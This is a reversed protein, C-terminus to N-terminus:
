EHKSRGVAQVTKSGLKPDSTSIVIRKAVREGRENQFLIKVSEGSTLVNQDILRGNKGRETAQDLLRTGKNWRFVEAPQNDNEAITLSMHPLDVSKIVGQKWALWHNSRAEAEVGILALAFLLWCTCRFKSATKVM